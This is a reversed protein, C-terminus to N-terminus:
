LTPMTGYDCWWQSGDFDFRYKQGRPVQLGGQGPAIHNISMQDNNSFVTLLHSDATNDVRHITVAYGSDYAPYDIAGMAAPNPLIVMADYSDCNVRIIAGRHWWDLNYAQGEATPVFTRHFDMGEVSCGRSLVRITGTGGFSPDIAIEVANGYGVLPIFTRGSIGYVVGGINPAVVHVPQASDDDKVVTFRRYGLNAPTDNLNVIGSGGVPTMLIVKDDYTAINTADLTLSQGGAIFGAFPM